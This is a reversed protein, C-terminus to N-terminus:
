KRNGSKTELSKPLHHKLLGSPKTNQVLFAFSVRRMLGDEIISSRFPLILKARSVGVAFQVLSANVGKCGRYTNPPHSYKRATLAKIRNKWVFANHMLGYLACVYKFVVPMTLIFDNRTCTPWYHWVFPLCQLHASIQTIFDIAWSVNCIGKSHKNMIM